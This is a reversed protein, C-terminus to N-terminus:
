GNGYGPIKLPNIFKNHSMTKRGRIDIAYNNKRQMEENEFDDKVMM